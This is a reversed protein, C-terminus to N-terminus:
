LVGLRREKTISKIHSTFCVDSDSMIQCKLILSDRIPYLITREVEM